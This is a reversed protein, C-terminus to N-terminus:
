DHTRDESSNHVLVKLVGSDAAAAMAIAEPLRAFPLCHSVIGDLPLTKRRLFSMALRFCAQDTEAQAHVARLTTVQKRFAVEHDFLTAGAPLGFQLVTGFERVLAYALRIPEQGGAADIVLDAGGDTARLVQDIAEPDHPDFVLDAGFRAAAERRVPRPELTAVIRAGMGRAMLLFELGASGQGIIAVRRDLLSGAPRLAHIVTGLQQARVALDPSMGSPVQMCVRAPVALYECFGNSAPPLALVLDGVGFADSRSEVVEGVFEHGPAGIVTPGGLLEGAHYSKIDSGCIGATVLRLLVGDDAVQPRPVSRMRLQDPGYLEAALMTLESAPPEASLLTDM